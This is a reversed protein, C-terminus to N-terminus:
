MKPQGLVLSPELSKCIRNALDIMRRELLQYWVKGMFFCVAIFVFELEPESLRRLMRLSECYTALFIFALHLLYIGIALQIKWLWVRIKSGALLSGTLFM